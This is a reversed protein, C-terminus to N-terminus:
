LEPALDDIFVTEGLQVVVCANGLGGGITRERGYRRWCRSDQPQAGRRPRRHHPQYWEDVMALTALAQQASVSDDLQQKRATFESIRNRGLASGIDSVAANLKASQRRIVENTEPVGRLIIRIEDGLEYLQSNGFDRANFLIM